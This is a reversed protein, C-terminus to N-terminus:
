PIKRDRDQLALLIARLTYKRHCYIRPLADKRDMKLHFRSPEYGVNEYNEHYYLHGHAVVLHQKYGALPVPDSCRGTWRAIKKRRRRVEKSLQLKFTKSPNMIWSSNRTDVFGRNIKKYFWKWSLSSPIGQLFFFLNMKWIECRCPLM